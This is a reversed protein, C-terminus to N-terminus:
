GRTTHNRERRPSRHSILENKASLGRAVWPTEKLFSISHARYLNEFIFKGPFFEPSHEDVIVSGGPLLTGFAVLIARFAAVLFNGDNQSAREALVCGIPEFSLHFREIAARRQINQLMLRCARADDFGQQHSHRPSPRRSNVGSCCLCFMGERAPVGDLTHAPVAQCGGCFIRRPKADRGKRGFVLAGRLRRTQEPQVTLSKDALGARRRSASFQPASAARAAVTLRLQRAHATHMRTVDAVDFSRADVEGEGIEFRESHTQHARAGQGGCGGHPELGRRTFTAGKARREEVLPFSRKPIKWQFCDTGAPLSESRLVRGAADSVRLLAEVDLRVPIPSVFRSGRQLTRSMRGDHRV